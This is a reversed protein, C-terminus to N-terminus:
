KEIKEFLFFEWIKEIKLQIKVPFEGYTQIM